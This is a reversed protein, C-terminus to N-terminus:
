TVGTPWEAFNLPQDFSTFLWTHSHAQLHELPELHLIEPCHGWVSARFPSCQSGSTSFTPSDGLPTPNPSLTGRGLQSPTQPTGHAVTTAPLFIVATLRTGFDQCQLLVMWFSLWFFLTKSGIILKWFCVMKVDIGHVCFKVAAFIFRIVMWYSPPVQWIHNSIGPWRCLYVIWNSVCQDVGVAWPVLNDQIVM